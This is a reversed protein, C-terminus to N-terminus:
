YGYVKDQKIYLANIKKQIKEAKKIQKDSYAPEAYYDGYYATDAVGAAVSDYSEAAYPEVIASTDVAYESDDYAYNSIYNLHEDVEDIGDVEGYKWQNNIYAVHDVRIKYFKTGHKIFLEGNDIVYLPSRKKIEIEYYFDVFEINNINISDELLWDQIKIFSEKLQERLKAKLEVRGSLEEQIREKERESLYPSALSTKALMDLDADTVEFTQIFFVSDNKKIAEILKKSYLQPDPLVTSVSSSFILCAAASLFVTLSTKFM